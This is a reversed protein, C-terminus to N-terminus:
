QRALLRMKVEALEDPAMERPDAGPVAGYLHNYPNLHKALINTQPSDSANREASAGGGQQVLGRFAECPHLGDLGASLSLLSGQVAIRATATSSTSLTAQRSGVFRPGLILGEIILVMLLALIWLSREVGCAESRLSAVTM